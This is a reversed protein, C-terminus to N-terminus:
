LGHPIGGYVNKIEASRTTQRYAKLYTDTPCTYPMGKKHKTLSEVIKRAKKIECGEVLCIDQASITGKTIIKLWKDPTLTEM